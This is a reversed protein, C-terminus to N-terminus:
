PASAYAIISRAISEAIKQRYEGSNLRKEEQKNTLYGMEVLVAPMLTNRVVFFRAHRAGRNSTKVKTSIEHAMRAALRGSEAVKLQYMMDSVIAGVAPASVADLNTMLMRENKSRQEEELDKKTTTKVYYVEVGEVRRAPNSNAHVSVFLDANAKTAIETRGNLSIFIDTDRTMTVKFGAETLISKLRKSVDLVLDKERLGGHGKAGPDKGGHGPDIVISKFRLNSVAASVRSPAEGAVPGIVKDEFDEPVYITSSIRRLPASLNIKENGLLIVSSGILAKAKHNRYELTVVQTVSDFHWQINYKRCIDQLAPGTQQTTTTPVTACGSILSATLLFLFFNIIKKM